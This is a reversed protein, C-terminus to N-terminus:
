RCPANEKSVLAYYGAKYLNFLLISPHRGSLNRRLLKRTSRFLLRLLGLLHLRKLRNCARSAGAESQMPEGLKSLVRLSAETKRLFVDNSDIGTHVLPNDVHLIKVGCKKFMLGMLADEYGYETCREDFRVKELAQKSFLTNFTTFSKYPHRNRFIAARHPEAAKEYRFRLEHGPPCCDPNRLAGCVVEAQKHLTWYTRIFDDTCTEADCDMFLLWPFSAACILQNRNAARGINSSQALVHCEPLQALESNLRQVWQEGSGDDSILLEFNFRDKGFEERVTCCQEYLSKALKTCDYKYTPILISFM